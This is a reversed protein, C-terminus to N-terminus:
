RVGVLALGLEALTADPTEPAVLTLVDGAAFTTASAMIFTATTASAAFGVTGVSSDNKRIDFDTQATAAVSSVGRSGTLGSPFVVERPFPYRVLVENAEPEGGFLIGLDYPQTGKWTGEYRLHRQQDV